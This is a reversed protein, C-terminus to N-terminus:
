CMYAIYKKLRFIHALKLKLFVPDGALNAPNTLNALNRTVVTEALDTLDEKLM